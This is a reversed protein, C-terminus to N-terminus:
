TFALDDKYDPIVPAQIPEKQINDVADAFERRVEPLTASAIGKGPLSDYEAFFDDQSDTGISAGKASNIDEREVLKTDSKQAIVVNDSATAMHHLSSADSKDLLAELEATKGAASLENAKDLTADLEQQRVRKDLWAQQDADLGGGSAIILEYSDQIKQKKEADTETGDFKVGAKKAMEDLGGMNEELEAMEKGLRASEAQIAELRSVLGNFSKDKRAKKKDKKLQKMLGRDMHVAMLGSGVTEDEANMSLNARMTNLAKKAGEGANVADDNPNFKNDTSM